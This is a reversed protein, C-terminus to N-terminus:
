SDFDLTTIGKTISLQGGMISWTSNGTLVDDTVSTTHQEDQQDPSAPCPVARDLTVGSIDLSGKSIQVTGKNVYCRHSITVNGADDFRVTNVGMDSSGTATGNSGNNTEIGSLKWTTGTLQTSGGTPDSRSYVLAGVGDKTITLQDGVIEWSVKGTLVALIESEESGSCAALTGGPPGIDLTGDGVTANASYYNCGADFRLKEDILLTQRRTPTHAVGDPGTGTEITTLYWTVGTLDNPDTSRKAAATARYVLSGAGDKTLTLQDDSIKWTVDGSLMTDVLDATTMVQDDLCAMATTALGNGFGLKSDTVDVDGSISNCGDSGSVKHDATILLSANGAVPVDHGAPDTIGALTWKTGVLPSGTPQTPEELEYVLSFAQAGGGYILLQGDRLSWLTPNQDLFSDVTTAVDADCPPAVPGTRERPVASLALTGHGLDATIGNLSQCGDRGTVAGDKEVRLTVDAAAANGAISVLHWTRGILNAPDTAATDSPVWQYTLMGAGDGKITLVTGDVQEHVTAGAFVQEIAAATSSAECPGVASGALGKLTLQHGDLAVESSVTNCGYSSTLNGNDVRLTPTGTVPHDNGQGDTIQMLQWTSGLFTPVDLTPAPLDPAAALHMTGSADSITLQDGDIKYTPFAPLIDLARTFTVEGVSDTCEYYRVDVRGSVGLRGNETNVHAGILNCGDDAVLQGDKGIYLTALSNAMSQDNGYGVLRWVTGELAPASADTAKGNGGINSILVTGGAVLAAAVIAASAFLGTRRFRRPIATAPGALSEADITPETESAPGATSRWAEGARHLRADMQNDTM